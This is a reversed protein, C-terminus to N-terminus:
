ENEKPLSIIQSTDLQPLEITCVKNHKKILSEVYNKEISILSFVCCNAVLSTSLYISLGPNLMTMLSLASSGLMCCSRLVSITYLWRKDNESLEQPLFDGFFPNFVTLCPVSVLLVATSGMWLFSSLVPNNLTFLASCCSSPLCNVLSIARLKRYAQKEHPLETGCSLEDYLFEIICCCSMKTTIISKKICFKIKINKVTMKECKLHNSYIM